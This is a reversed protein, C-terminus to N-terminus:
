DIGRCHQDALELKFDMTAQSNAELLFRKKVPKFFTCFVRLEYRGASLDSFEYRGDEHTKMVREVKGDERRLTLTVEPQTASANDTVTGRIEAAFALSSCFAMFLAARLLRM